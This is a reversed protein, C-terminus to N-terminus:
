LLVGIEPAWAPMRRTAFAAGTSVLWATLALMLFPVTVLVPAIASIVPYAAMAPVVSMLCMWLSLFALDDYGARQQSVGGLLMTAILGCFVWPRFPNLYTSRTARSREDALAGIQGALHLDDISYGHYGMAWALQMVLLRPKDIVFTRLAERKNDRMISLVVERAVQEYRVFDRAIGSFQYDEQGPPRFVLEIESARGTEMLRGRVLQIMPTDDISLAYKRALVPNLAFGIGVNHWFVRHRLQSRQYAPDMAVRQYVDMGGLAIALAACPWLSKIGVHRRALVWAGVGAVTLVQWWETSRVNVSFAILTAQVLAAGLRTTTLRQGDLMAVSLHLVAVLSVAGFARPNHISGLESTLPLAFFAAYIAFALFCLAVLRAEHRRYVVAYALVGALYIAFWLYYLSEIREGFIRFALIAFDADGKDDGPFFM